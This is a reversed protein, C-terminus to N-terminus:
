GIWCWLLKKFLPVSMALHMDIILCLPAYELEIGQRQESANYQPYRITYTMLLHPARHSSPTPATWSPLGSCDKRSQRRGRLRHM